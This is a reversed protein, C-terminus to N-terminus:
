YKSKMHSRSRKTTKSRRRTTSRKSRKTTKSRSRTKSRKSRKLTKSRKTTKSRRRTTSKSRIKSRKTTKSKKITRRRRRSKPRSMKTLKSKKVSRKRKSIKTVKMKPSFTKQIYHMDRRFKMANEPHRNKNYIYLVNLRKVIKGWSDKKALKKLVSRRSKVSKDLTYGPLKGKTVPIRVLSKSTSKM